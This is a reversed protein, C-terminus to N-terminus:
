ELNTLIRISNMRIKRQKGNIVHSFENDHALM